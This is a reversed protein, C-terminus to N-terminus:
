KINETLVAIHGKVRNPTQKYWTSDKVEVIAKAYDNKSLATLFKKFKLVGNKGLQFVMEVLMEQISEPVDLNYQEVILRASDFATSCDKILLAHAQEETLGNSFNEGKVVLHGYGITPFGLSDQYVWFKGNKYYGLKSQYTQSGENIKVRDLFAKSPTHLTWNAM